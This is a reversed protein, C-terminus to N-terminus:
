KVEQGCPCHEHQNMRLYRYHWVALDYDGRDVPDTPWAEKATAIKVLRDNFRETSPTLEQPLGRKLALAYEKADLEENLDWYYSPM